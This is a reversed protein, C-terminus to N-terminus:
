ESVHILEVEALRTERSNLRSAMELSRVVCGDVNLYEFAGFRGHIFVNQDETWSRLSEVNKEYGVTYVVYAYELRQVNSFVVPHTEPVLGYGILGDLVHKVLEDDSL